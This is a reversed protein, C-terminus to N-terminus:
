ENGGKQQLRYFSARDREVQRALELVALELDYANLQPVSPALCDRARCNAIIEDLRKQDLHRNM